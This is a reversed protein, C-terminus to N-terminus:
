GAAERSMAESSVAERALATPPPPVPTYREVVSHSLASVDPGPSRAASTEDFQCLQETLQGLAPAELRTVIEPFLEVAQKATIRRQEDVLHRAARAIRQREDLNWNLEREASQHLVEILYRVSQHERRGDDFRSQDFAFGNRMLMPILVEEVKEFHRYDAVTRFAHVLDRLDGARLPQGTELASVYVELAETLGQLLWHDRELSELARM